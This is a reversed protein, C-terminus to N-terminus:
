INLKNRIKYNREKQAWIIKIKRTKSNIVKRLKKIKEDVKLMEMKIRVFVSDKLRYKEKQKFYKTNLSQNMEYHFDLLELVLNLAIRKKGDLGLRDNIKIKNISNLNRNKVEKLIKEFKSNLNVVEFFSSIEDKSIVKNQQNQNELYYLLSLSNEQIKIFPLLM